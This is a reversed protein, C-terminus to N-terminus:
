ERRYVKFTCKFEVDEAINFEGMLKITSKDDCPQFTDNGKPWKFHAGQIM